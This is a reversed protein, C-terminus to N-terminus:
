GQELRPLLHQWVARLIDNPCAENHATTTVVARHAPLVISFQGFKGDARYAGARTCRWLQYGYGCQCEPDDFGEVPVTDEAAARLYAAPVLQRGDWAGNQLLLRGLRAFEETKLYLGVAGLTHGQPCTHWQPNTIGLPTFLRDILYSRLPQGSAAQVVRSLMYTCGNDYFFRSGSPHAPPRAFFLRAWDAGAEHAAGDATFLSQAYGARMQLLDLVTMRGAEPATAMGLLGAVGDDLAFRGEAVAIGVAAATFAKSGSYLHVREDERFCHCAEGGGERYLHVGYLGLNQEQAAALFGDLIESKM